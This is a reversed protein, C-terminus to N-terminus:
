RAPCLLKVEVASGRERWSSWSRGFTRLISLNAIFSTCRREPLKTVADDFHVACGTAAQDGRSIALGAAKGIVEGFRM